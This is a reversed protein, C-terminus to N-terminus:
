LTLPSGSLHLLPYYFHVIGPLLCPVAIGAGHAREPGQLAQKIAWDVAEEEAHPKLAEVTSELKTAARCSFAELTEAPILTGYRLIWFDYRESASADGGGAGSSLSLKDLQEWAQEGPEVMRSCRLRKCWARANVSAVYWKNSCAHRGSASSSVDTSRPAGPLCNILVQVAYQGFTSSCGSAAM